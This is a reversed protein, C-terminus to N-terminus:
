RALASSAIPGATAPQRNLLFAHLSAVSRESRTLLFLHGCDFIELRANPILRALLRANVLPVIPDDEGAMVLTPQTIEHLWHVSTWGALAWLQNLYGVISPPSMRRAHRESLVRDTRFDGGYIAGAITKFYGASLYRLPTAMQLIVSPRPPVMLHGTSTAALVLREVRAPHQRTFQQALAGGWSIGMVHVNGIGLADLLERALQAYGPLRRILMSRQSAGIGPLDFTVTAVGTLRRMLPELLETSAGIGNFILLPPGSAGARSADDRYTVSRRRRQSLRARHRIPTADGVSRERAITEQDRDAASETVRARVHRARRGVASIERQGVDDPAAHQGTGRTKLWDSWYPWWSGVHEQADRRWADADQPTEPNLYYRRKSAGPPNILSQIHGATSLVYTAPGGFLHTSRYCAQWPTIHDTTGGTIFVPCVVRKLDISVDRVKLAGARRFPNDKFIDLFDSHLRAPLRTNDNNWYLIDFAPPTEGHLYNSVVYNWILDNPRM